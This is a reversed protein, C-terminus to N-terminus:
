WRPEPKYAMAGVATTADGRTQYRGLEAGPEEDSVAKVRCLQLRRDTLSSLRYLRGNVRCYWRRSGRM